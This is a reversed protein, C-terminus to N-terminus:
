HCSSLKRVKGAVKKLYLGLAFVDAAFPNYLRTRAPTDPPFKGEKQVHHIINNLEPLTMPKTDHSEFCEPPICVGAEFRVSIPNAQSFHSALGLDILHYRVPVDIRDYIPQEESV